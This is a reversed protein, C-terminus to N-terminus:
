LAQSPSVKRRYEDSYILLRSYGMRPALAIRYYEFVNMRHLLFPFEKGHSGTQAYEGLNLINTVPKSFCLDTPVSLAFSHTVFSCGM